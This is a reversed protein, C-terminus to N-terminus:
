WGNLRSPSLGMAPGPLSLLRPGARAPNFKFSFTGPRYRSHNILAPLLGANPPAQSHSSMSEAAFSLRICWRISLQM